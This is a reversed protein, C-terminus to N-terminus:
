KRAQAHGIISLSHINFLYYSSVKPRDVSLWPCYMYLGTYSCLILLCHNWLLLHDKLMSLYRNHVLM